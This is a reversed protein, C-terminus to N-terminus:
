ESRATGAVAIVVDVTNRVSRASIEAMVVGGFGCGGGTNDRCPGGIDVRRGEIYDAEHTRNLHLVDRNAMRRREFRCPDASSVDCISGWPIIGPLSNFGPGRFKLRKAPRHLPKPIWRNYRKGCSKRPVGHFIGPVNISNTVTNACGVFPARLVRFLWM